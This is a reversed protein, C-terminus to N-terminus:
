QAGAVTIRVPNTYFWLREGNEARVWGRGRISLSGAVAIHKASLVGNADSRGSALPRAGISDAVILELEPPDTGRGPARTTVLEATLATARSVLMAEGAHAARSLGPASVRLEARAVAGGLVGFFRGARLARLVGDATRDPAEIWTASFECPWYDNRPEHFDSTASAGWVDLGERLLTDWVGGPEATVPDWRDIPKVSARYAGVEKRKQHGPAGEFGVLRASTGHWRRLWPAVASPDPAKRSPHNLFLVPGASRDGWRGALWRLAEDALEPNEGRKDYDDFREKFEALAPQLDPGPPALLTVHDEGKGPPVNWELGALVITGPHKARAADIAQVYEPTAATLNADAHDTIATVDCGLAAARAVVEEVTHEGDSFRTHAHLDARLWVGRGAWPIERAFRAGSAKARQATGVALVALVGALVVAAAVSLRFGARPNGM